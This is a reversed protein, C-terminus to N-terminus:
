RGKGRRAATVSEGEGVFIRRLEFPSLTIPVM